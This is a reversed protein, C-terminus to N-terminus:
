CGGRRGPGRLIDGSQRYILHAPSGAPPSPADLPVPQGNTATRFDAIYRGFTGPENNRTDIWDVQIRGGAVAAQPIIQHGRGSFNPL